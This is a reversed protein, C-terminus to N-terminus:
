MTVKTVATKFEPLSGVNADLGLNAFTSAIEDSMSSSRKLSALFMTTMYIPFYKGMKVEGLLGTNNSPRPHKLFFGSGYAISFRM